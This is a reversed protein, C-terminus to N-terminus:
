RPGACRARASATVRARAAVLPLRVWARTRMSRAARGAHGPERGGGSGAPAGALSAAGASATKAAPQGSSSLPSRVPCRAETEAVVSTIKDIPEGSTVVARVNVTRFHPRVSRDGMRGRIDITFASEFDIAQYELGYETATRRFTVETCGCLAAVVTQLPTPGSATGGHAAPEDLIVLGTEGTDAVTRMTADSRATLTRRRLFQDAGPGNKESM